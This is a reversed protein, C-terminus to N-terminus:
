VFFPLVDHLPLFAYQYRTSRPEEPREQAFPKQLFAMLNKAGVIIVGSGTIRHQVKEVIRM